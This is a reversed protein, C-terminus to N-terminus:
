ACTRRRFRSTATGTSETAGGPRDPHQLRHRLLAPRRAPLRIRGAQRPGGGGNRRHPLVVPLGREGPRGRQGVVPVDAARRNPQLTPGQARGAVFGPAPLCRADGEDPHVPRPRFVLGDGVRRRRARDLRQHAPLDGSPPAAALQVGRRRRDVPRHTRNIGAQDGRQPLLLRVRDNQGARHPDPWRPSALDDVAGPREGPPGCGM